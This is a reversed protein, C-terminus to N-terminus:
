KNNIRAIVKSILRFLSCTLGDWPIIPYWDMHDSTSAWRITGLLERYRTGPAASLMVWKNVVMYNFSPLHEGFHDKMRKVYEFESDSMKLYNDARIREFDPGTDYVPGDDWGIIPMEPSCLLFEPIDVRQWGILSFPWSCLSDYHLGNDENGLTVLYHGHVDRGLVKQIFRQSTMKMTTCDVVEVDSDSCISKLNRQYSQYKEEQSRIISDIRNRYEQVLKGEDMGSQDIDPCYFRLIKSIMYLSRKHGVPDSFKSPIRIDSIDSGLMELLIRQAHIYHSEVSPDLSEVTRMLTYGDRASFLIISGERHSDCIYKTFSYALPGGYRDGMDEWVDQRQERIMDMFLIVSATLSRNRRFFRKQDFHTRLYGSIPSEIYVAQIGLSRPINYDARRNDGIHMMEEPRINLDDLIYRFLSGNHKTKRHESSIYLKYYRIGNKKLISEIVNRPLYMDTTIIVIKGETLSQYREKMWPNAFCLDIEFQCELEKFSILDKPMFSYIEDLTVETGISSRAKSEAKIRLDCFDNRSHIQGLLTFLDTPKLFPRLILTDFLDFSVVKVSDPLGDM